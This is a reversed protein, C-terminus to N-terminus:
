ASPKRMRGGVKKKLEVVQDPSLVEISPGHTGYAAAYDEDLIEINSVVQQVLELLIDVKGKEKLGLELLKDLKECVKVDKPISDSMPESVPIGNM